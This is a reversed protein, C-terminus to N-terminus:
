IHMCLKRSFEAKKPNECPALDGSTLFWESSKTLSLKFAFQNSQLERWLNDCPFIKIQSCRISKSFSRSSGFCGAQCDMELVGGFGVAQDQLCSLSQGWSAQKWWGCRWGAACDQRCAACVSCGWVLQVPAPLLPGRAPSALLLAPSVCTSVFVRNIQVTALTLSLCCCSLARSTKGPELSM